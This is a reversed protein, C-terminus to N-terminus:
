DVLRIILREKRLFEINENGSMGDNVASKFNGDLPFFGITM